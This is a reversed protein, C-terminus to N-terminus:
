QSFQQCTGQALAITRTDFGSHTKNPLRGEILSVEVKGHSFASIALALLAGTMGGGVIIVKM